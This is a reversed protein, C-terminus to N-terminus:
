SGIDKFAIDLVPYERYDRFDYHWWEEAYVTFMGGREMARRLLDRRARQEPTGAAYAVHSRGSMEDYAGPMELVRGSELEVLGVDVACGRNHVSGKAPDAVFMHKEPPTIDWFLKTVSWPRYADYVVLGLCIFFTMTLIKKASMARAPSKLVDIFSFDPPQEM